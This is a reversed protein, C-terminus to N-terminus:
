PPPPENIVFDHTSGVAGAAPKLPFYRDGPNTAGGDDVDDTGISYLLYGRGFPDTSADIAKYMLSQGTYPDLPLTALYEPVLDARRSPYIGTAERYREIAIMARIGRLRLLSADVTDQARTTSWGIMWASPLILSSAGAPALPITAGAREWPEQKSRAAIADFRRDFALKNEAYTGLRGSPTTGLGAGIYPALSSSYKGLRVRGPDSFIWALSQEAWFREVEARYEPAFSVAQRDLIGSVTDLWDAPVPPMLSEVLLDLVDPEHFSALYGAAPVPSEELFRLLALSHELSRAAQARDHADLALKANAIAAPLVNEATYCSGVRPGLANGNSGICQPILAGRRQALQDLLDNMGAANYRILWDRADAIDAPTPCAQLSSRARSAANDYLVQFRPQNFASAIAAPREEAVRNAIAALRSLLDLVSEKAATPAPVGYQGPLADLGKQGLLAAAAAAAQRRLFIEYGGVTGGVVVVLVAISWIATRRATRRRAPKWFRGALEPPTFEPKYRSQGDPGVALEGLSPDVEVDTGCEPCRVRRDPGVPLGVLSYWCESCVGRVRLVFRVRRRLLVDRVLVVVFPGPSMIAFFAILGILRGWLPGDSLPDLWGFNGEVLPAVAMLSGVFVPSAAVAVILCGIARRWAGGRASKIFRVCQEDSYRDLEPFARYIRRTLLRM